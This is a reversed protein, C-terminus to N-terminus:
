ASPREPEKTLPASQDENRFRIIRAPNGVAV